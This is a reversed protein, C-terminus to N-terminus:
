TTAIRKGSERRGSRPRSKTGERNGDAPRPVEQPPTFILTTVEGVPRGVYGAIGFLTPERPSGRYGEEYMSWIARKLGAELAAEEQTQDKAIRVARMLEGLANMPKIM